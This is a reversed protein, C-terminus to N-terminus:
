WEKFDGNHEHAEIVNGASDYVRMITAHLVPFDDSLRLGLELRHQSFASWGATWKLIFLPLPAFQISMARGMAAWPPPPSTTLM